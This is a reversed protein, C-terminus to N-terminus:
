KLILSSASWHIRIQSDITTLRGVSMVRRRTVNHRGIFGEHLLLLERMSRPCLTPARRADLCSWAMLVEGSEPWLMVIVVAVSHKITSRAIDDRPRTTTPANRGLGLEAVVGLEVVVGRTVFLFVLIVDCCLIPANRLELALFVVTSEQIALRDEPCEISIFTRINDLIVHRRSM